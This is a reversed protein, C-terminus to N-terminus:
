YYGGGYGEEEASQEEGGDESYGGYGGGDHESGHQTEIHQVHEPHHAYQQQAAM